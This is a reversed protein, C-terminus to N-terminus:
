TMISTRITAIWHYIQTAFGNHEIANRSCNETNQECELSCKQKVEKTRINAEKKHMGLERYQREM